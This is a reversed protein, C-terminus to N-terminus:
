RAVPTNGRPGGPTDKTVNASFQPSDLIELQQVDFVYDAPKGDKDVGGVEYRICGNAYKYEAVVLGTWGSVRDKVKTYFPIEGM